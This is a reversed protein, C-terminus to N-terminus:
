KRRRHILSYTGQILAIMCHKDKQLQTGESLMTDELTVPAM